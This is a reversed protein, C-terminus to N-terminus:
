IKYIELHKQVVYNIDFKEIAMKRSAISMRKLITQNELLYSIKQSLEKVSKSPVLLGTVNNLIADRCGPVNSTIVPIGCAAAECLVKPFGERYSPLVVISSIQL